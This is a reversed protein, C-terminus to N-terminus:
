TNKWQSGPKGEPTLWLMALFLLGGIGMLAVHIRFSGVVLSNALGALLVLLGAVVTATFAPHAYIIERATSPSLVEVVLAPIGVTRADAPVPRERALVALDPHYANEDDLVVGVPGPLVREEGVCRCFCLILRLVLRQHRPVPSADKILQGEILQAPYGEPLRYWDRVQFRTATMAM